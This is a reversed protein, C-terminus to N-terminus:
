RFQLSVWAENPWPYFRFVGHPPKCLLWLWGERSASGSTIHWHYLCFFSVTHTVHLMCVRFRPMVTQWCLLPQKHYIDSSHGCPYLYFACETFFIVVFYFVLSTYVEHASM